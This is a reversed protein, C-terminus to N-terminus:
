DEVIYTGSLTATNSSSLNLAQGLVRVNFGGSSTLEGMLVTGSYYGQLRITRPPNPIGHVTGNIANSGVSVNSSGGHFQLVLQVVQGSKTYEGSSFTWSGSSKSYTVAASTWSMKECEVRGEESDLFITATDASNNLTLGDNGVLKIRGIGNKDYINLRGGDEADVYCEARAYLNGNKVSWTHSSFEGSGSVFVGSNSYTQPNAAQSTAGILYIKSSTNTSGATNKTDPPTAWSGANNLYTTTSSGLQPGNTITHAGNFKTLYGSTGSGTVNNTISPTVTVTQATGGSPTVTFGNTGNAFTYTTNNDSNPLKVWSGWANDATAVRQVRVGSDSVAIQIPRGGSSDNWPTITHLVCFTGSMISNVGIASCSKFEEVTCKPYNSMYWSPLQNDSRTDSSLLKYSSLTYTTNNPLKINSIDAM